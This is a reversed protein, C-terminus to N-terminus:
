GYERLKQIKADVGARDRAELSRRWTAAPEDGNPRQYNAVYMRIYGLLNYNDITVM